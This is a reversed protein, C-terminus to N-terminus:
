FVEELDEVLKKPYFPRMDYKLVQEDIELNTKAEILRGLQGSSNAEVSVIKEADGMKKIVEERPFPKFCIPQIVSFGIESIKKAELVAGKTSGWTVVVNGEDGDFRNVLEREGLDKKISEIKKLRKNQMKKIKEPEETTHGDELHEYSSSKVVAEKGPFKLPSVGDSTDLYRLYRSKGESPKKPEKEELMDTDIETSVYSESLHKDSLLTVPIQYKWALNLSMGSCLFAEKIDGPALVIHPFEGHGAEIVYGLDSQSTYTPVGTSPGARQAEVIVVPTESMGALSLAEQMLDYGGGSTGVMSKAGAFASGLAINLVAIENEPQMVDIGLERKNEAAFHLISTSPTMPYAVYLDLGSVSSGLLFAQNGTLFATDESERKEFDFLTKEEKSCREYIKESISINVEAKDGYEDRLVNNLTKLNIGSLYSIAAVFGTNEIIKPGNIEKRFDSIPLSVFEEKEKELNNSNIIIKSKDEQVLNKKHTKITKEDFAGLLNIKKRQSRTKESCVHIESFNHGGEILSPYDDRSFVFYGNRNFVKGLVRGAARVGEGAEGGIVISVDKM